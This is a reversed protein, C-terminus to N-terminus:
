RVRVRSITLGAMQSTANNYSYKDRAIFLGACEVWAPDCCWSPTVYTGQYARAFCEIRGPTYHLNFPCDSRLQDEIWEWSDNPNGFVEVPLIYDFEGGNHTWCDDASPFQAAPFSEDLVYPQWHSQPVSANAGISNKGMGFSPIINGITETVQWAWEHQDKMLFQLHHKSKELVLIFHTPLYPWKQLFLSAERGCLLGEGFCESQLRPLDFHFSNNFDVPMLISTVPQSAIGVPRFQRLQNYQVLFRGIRRTAVPDLGGTGGLKYVERIVSFDEKETPPAPDSLVKANQIIIGALAMEISAELGSVLGPDNQKNAIALVVGSPVPKNLLLGIQNRMRDRVAERSSFVSLLDSMFGGKKKLSALSGMIPCDKSQIISRFKLLDVTVENKKPHLELGFIWTLIISSPSSISTLTNSYSSSRASYLAM